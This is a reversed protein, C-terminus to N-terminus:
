LPHKAAFVKYARLVGDVLDRLGYTTEQAANRVTVFLTIEGLPNEDGSRPNGVRSRGFHVPERIVRETVDTVTRRRRDLRFHKSSDDIDKCIQVHPNTRLRTLDAAFDPHTRPSGKGIWEQLHWATVMFNFLNDGNVNATLRAAERQLKEYLDRPTGLPLRYTPDM